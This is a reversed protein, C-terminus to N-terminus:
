MPWASCSPCPFSPISHCFSLKGCFCRPPPRKKSTMSKQRGSSVFAKGKRQMSVPKHWGHSSGNPTTQSSPSCGSHIPRSLRELVCFSQRCDVQWSVDQRWMNNREHQIGIGCVANWCPWCHRPVTTPSNTGLPQQRSIWTVSSQGMPRLQMWNGSLSALFNYLGTSLCANQTRRMEDIAQFVALPKALSIGSANSAYPFAFGLKACAVCGRGGATCNKITGFSFMSVDANTYGQYELGNFAQACDEILVLGHQRALDVLPEMKTRSGFLHAVLIAKTAPSIAQRWQNISPAM